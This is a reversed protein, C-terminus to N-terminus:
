HFAFGDLMCRRGLSIISPSNPLLAFDLGKKLAPVEIKPGDVVTIVGNVTSMELEPDLNAVRALLGKSCESLKAIDFASGSDM